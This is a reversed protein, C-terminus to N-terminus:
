RAANRGYFVSDAADCYADMVGEQEDETVMDLLDGLLEPVSEGAWEGSLWEPAETAGDMRLLLARDAGRLASETLAQNYTMTHQPM